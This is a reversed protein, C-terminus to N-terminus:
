SPGLLTILALCIALNASLSTKGGGGKGSAVAIVSCAKPQEKMQQCLLNNKMM